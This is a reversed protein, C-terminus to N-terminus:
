TAKLGADLQAARRRQKAKAATIRSGTAFYVLREYEEGSLHGHDGAALQEQAQVMEINQLLALKQGAPLSLVNGGYFRALRADAQRTV